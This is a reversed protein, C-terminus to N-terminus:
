MERSWLRDFDLEVVPPEKPEYVVWAGTRVHEAVDRDDYGARSLVDAPNDESAVHEYWPRARLM